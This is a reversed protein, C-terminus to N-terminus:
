RLFESWWRSAEMASATAHRGEFSGAYIYHDLASRAEGRSLAAAVDPYQMTYFKEDFEPRVGFRGEFYGSEVFHTKLDTIKGAEYAQRVDPYTALYFKPDFPLGAAAASLVAQM